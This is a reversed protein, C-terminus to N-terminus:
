PNDKYKIIFEHEEIPLKKEPQDQMIYEEM